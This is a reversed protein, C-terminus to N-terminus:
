KGHQLPEKGLAKRIANEVLNVPAFVIALAKDATEDTAYIYCHDASGSFRSKGTVGILVYVALVAVLPIWSGAVSRREDERLPM